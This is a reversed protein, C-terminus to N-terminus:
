SIHSYNEKRLMQILDIEDNKYGFTIASVYTSKIAHEPTYMHM